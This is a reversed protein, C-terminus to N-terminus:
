KIKDHNKAPAENNNKRESMIDSDTNKDFNIREAVYVLPRKLIQTHISAVYEGIIGLFFLLISFFFFLAIMIPAIGAYFHNWFILKLIFLAAACFLSFVSLFLGLMTALRIPVKSHSTFGLIAWDFLIYFNAKSAGRKRLPQLFPIEKIPYGIESIIGRFYPYSDGLEKIAHIVTKDYLGFGTFNKVLKINAIKNALWYYLKRVRAMLFGEQTKAKTAVVIKWGAEWATLFDKILEPPDQLDCVISIVVDGKAQFYGYVPSRVPGFNRTNVIIKVNNDQAAIRKLISVTKDESCNDIFIHEYHYQPLESFIKKVQEYLDAANEEENYCPTVVSILKM